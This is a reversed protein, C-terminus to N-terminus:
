DIERDIIQYDLLWELVNEEICEQISTHDKHSVPLREKFFTRQIGGPSQASYTVTIFDKNNKHLLMLSGNMLFHDFLKASFAARAEEQMALYNMEFLLAYTDNQEIEEHASLYTEIINM